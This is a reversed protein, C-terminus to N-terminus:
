SELVVFSVLNISPTTGAIVYRLRLYRYTVGNEENSFPLEFRGTGTAATNGTPTAGGLQKSALAVVSSAFSASNSGQVQLIYSEDGTVTDIASVDMIVRADVRAAGLDLIKAAASVTANGSATVAGTDKLLLGADFTFAKQNSAM